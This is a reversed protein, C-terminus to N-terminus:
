PEETKESRKELLRAVDFLNLINLNEKSRSNEKNMRINFRGGWPLTVGKSELMDLHNPHRPLQPLPM